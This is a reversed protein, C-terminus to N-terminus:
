QRVCFGDCGVIFISVIETEYYFEKDIDAEEIIEARHTRVPM